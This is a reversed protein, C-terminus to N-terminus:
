QITCNNERDRRKLQRTDLPIKGTTGTPDRDAAAVPGGSLPMTKSSMTAESDGIASYGDSISTAPYPDDVADMPNSSASGPNSNEAYQAYLMLQARLDCTPPANIACRSHSILSCATCLVASRKVTLLCVRCVM